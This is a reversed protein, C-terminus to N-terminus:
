WNVGYEKKPKFYDARINVGKAKGTGLEREENIGSGLADNDTEAEQKMLNSDYEEMHVDICLYKSNDVYKEVEQDGAAYVQHKRAIERNTSQALRAHAVCAQRWMHAFFTCGGYHLYTLLLRTLMVAADSYGLEARHALDPELGSPAQLYSEYLGFLLMYYELQIHVARLFSFCSRWTGELSSLQLTSPLELAWRELIEVSENLSGHTLEEPLSSNPKIQKLKALSLIERISQLKEESMEPTPIPTLRQLYSLPISNTIGRTLPKFEVAVSCECAVIWDWAMAMSIEEADVETRTQDSLAQHFDLQCAVKYAMRSYTAAYTLQKTHFSYMYLCFLAYITNTSVEDEFIEESLEERAKGFFRAALERGFKNLDIGPRLLSTANTHHMLYHHANMAAVAYRLAKFSTLKRQAYSYMAFRGIIVNSSGCHVPSYLIFNLIAEELDATVPISNTDWQNLTHVSLYLGNVFTFPGQPGEFEASYINTSTPPRPVFKSGSIRTLMEYLQRFNTFEVRAGNNSLTIVWPGSKAEAEGDAGRFVINSETRNNAGVPALHPIDASMMAWRASKTELIDKELMAMEQRLANLDESIEEAAKEAYICQIRAQQCRCCTPKDGDCRRKKHRCNLCPVIVRDQGDKSNSEFAPNHESSTEYSAKLHTISM